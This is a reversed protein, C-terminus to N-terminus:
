RTRTEFVSQLGYGNPKELLWSVGDRRQERFLLVYSGYGNPDVADVLRVEPHIDMQRPDSVASYLKVLKGEDQRAVVTVVWGHQLERQVVSQSATDSQAPTYRASYVVTAYDNYDLDYAVFQEEALKLEPLAAKAAATKRGPVATSAMMGRQGAVARLEARALERASAEMQEREQERGIYTLPQEESPGADSVAVQRTVAEEKEAAAGQKTQMEPLDPGSQEQVPKGRRLVPHDTDESATQENSAVTTKATNGGAATAVPKSSEETSDGRRHLVPRDPDDDAEVTGSAQSPHAAPQDGESGARRHLVPRTPDEVTV